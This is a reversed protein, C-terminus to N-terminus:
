GCSLAWSSSRQWLGNKMQDRKEPPRSLLVLQRDVIVPDLQAVGGGKLPELLHYEGEGGGAGVDSVQVEESAGEEGTRQCTM